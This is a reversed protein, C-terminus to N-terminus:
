DSILPSANVKKNYTYINSMSINIIHIQKKSKNKVKSLLCARPSLLGTYATREAYQVFSIERRGAEMPPLCFRQTALLKGAVCALTTVSVEEYLLRLSSSLYTQARRASTTPCNLIDKKMMSLKKRM